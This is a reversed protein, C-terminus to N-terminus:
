RSLKIIKKWFYLDCFLFGLISGMSPPIIFLIMIPNTKPAAAPINSKIGMTKCFSVQSALKDAKEIHITDPNIIEVLPSFIFPIKFPTM